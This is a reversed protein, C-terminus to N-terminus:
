GVGLTFVGIYSSNERRIRCILLLSSLNDEVGYCIWSSLSLYELLIFSVCNFYCGRYESLVAVLQFRNNIMVFGVVILHLLGEVSQISEEVKFILVLRLVVHLFIGKDREAVLKCVDYSVLPLLYFGESKANSFLDTPLYLHDITLKTLSLNFIIDVM